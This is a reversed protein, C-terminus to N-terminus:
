EDIKGRRTKNIKGRKRKTTNGVGVVEKKYELANVVDALNPINLVVILRKQQTTFTSPPSTSTTAPLSPDSTSTRTTRKRRSGFQKAPEPVGRKARPKRHSQTRHTASFTTDSAEISTTPDKHPKAATIYAATYGFARRSSVMVRRGPRVPERTSDDGDDDSGAHKRAGSDRTTEQFHAHDIYVPADDEDDRERVTSEANKFIRASLKVRSRREETMRL